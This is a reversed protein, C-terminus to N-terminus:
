ADTLGYYNVLIPPVYPDIYPNYTNNLYSSQGNSYVQVWKSLVSQSLNQVQWGQEYGYAIFVGFEASTTGTLISINTSFHGNRFLKTISDPIILGDIPLQFGNSTFTNLYDKSQAYLLLYIGSISPATFFDCRWRGTGGRRCLEAGGGDRRNLM